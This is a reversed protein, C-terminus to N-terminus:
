GYSESQCAKESNIYNIWCLFLISESPHFHFFGILTEKPQEAQPTQRERKWPQFPLRCPHNAQTPLLCRNSGTQPRLGRRRPRRRCPLSRRRSSSGSTDRRTQYVRYSRRPRRRRLRRRFRKSQQRSRCEANNLQFPLLRLSLFVSLMLVILGPVSWEARPKFNKIM